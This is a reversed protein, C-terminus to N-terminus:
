SVFVASAPSFASHGDASRLRARFLYKGKRLPTYPASSVTQGTKWSRFQRSGPKRIQVDEVFGAPVTTGQAWTVTFAVGKTATSPIVTPSVLVGHMTSHVRCHYPFTGAANTHQATSTTGATIFGTDWLPTSATTLNSTATHTVGAQNNTWAVSEAIGVRETHPTYTLNDITINPAGADASPALLALTGALAALFSAFRM